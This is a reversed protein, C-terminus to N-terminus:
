KVTGVKIGYGSCIGSFEQSYVFGKLVDMRSKGSQMLNLWYSQGGNDPERNLYVRYMVKIFDSNSLNKGTFEPSFIFGQSIDAGTSQGSVLKNVWYNLGSDDPKRDMCKNYFRYVFAAVAPNLDAPKTLQISGKNIGYNSCINTFENSNVFSALIYLRSIGNSLKDMWYTKGDIDAARNFFTGYMINIFTDDSVNNAAFEPSFIFNNAVDAGTNTKSKLKDVWYRLGTEDPQRNLTQVYFRTVFDRIVQMASSYPNRVKILRYDSFDTAIQSTSVGIRIYIYEQDAFQSKDLLNSLVWNNTADTILQDISGIYTLANNNLKYFELTYCKDKNSINTTQARFVLNMKGGDKDYQVTDIYGINHYTGLSDQLVAGNNTNPEILVYNAPYDPDNSAISTQTSTSTINKKIKMSSSLATHVESNPQVKNTNLEEASVIFSNSVILSLTIICSVLKKYM